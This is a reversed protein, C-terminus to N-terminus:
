KIHIIYKEKPVKHLVGVHRAMKERTGDPYMRYINGNEMWIAPVGKNLQNKIANTAAEAILGRKSLYVMSEELSRM